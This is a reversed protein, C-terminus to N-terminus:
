KVSETVIAFGDGHVCGHQGVVLGEFRGCSTVVVAGSEGCQVFRIVRVGEVLLLGVWREVVTVNRRNVVVCGVVEVIVFVIVYEGDFSM